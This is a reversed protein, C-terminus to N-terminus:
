EAFARLVLVRGRRSRYQAGAGTPLLMYHLRDQDVMHERLYNAGVNMLEVADLASHGAEPSTGAHASRGTFHFEASFLATM